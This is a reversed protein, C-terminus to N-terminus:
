PPRPEYGRDYFILAGSCRPEMRSYLGIRKFHSDGGGGGRGRKHESGRVSFNDTFHARGPSVPLSPKYRYSGGEISCKHFFYNINNRRALRSCPVPGTAVRCRTFPATRNPTASHSTPRTGLQGDLRRVGSHSQRRSASLSLSFFFLVLSPRPITIVIIIINSLLIDTGSLILLTDM